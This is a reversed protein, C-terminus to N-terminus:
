NHRFTLFYCMVLVESSTLRLFGPPLPGLMPPDWKRQARKSEVSMASDILDLPSPTSIQVNKKIKPSAGTNTALISQLPSTSLLLSSKRETEEKTGTFIAPSQTTAAAAPKDM